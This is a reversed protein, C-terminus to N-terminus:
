EVVIDVVGHEGEEVFALLGDFGLNVGFGDRMLQREVDGLVIGLVAGDGDHGEVAGVVAEEADVIADVMDTGRQFVKALFPKSKGLHFQLCFIQQLIRFLKEYRQLVFCIFCCYCFCCYFWSVSYFLSFIFVYYLANKSQKTRPFRWIEFQVVFSLLVSM